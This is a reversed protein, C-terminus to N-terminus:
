KLWKSDLEELEDESIFDGNKLDNLGMKLMEIQESSLESSQSFSDFLHSIVDLIKEDSTSQIKSILKRKKNEIVTMVKHSAKNLFLLKLTSNKKYRNKELGLGSCSM